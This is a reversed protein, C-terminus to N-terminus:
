QFKREFYRRAVDSDLSDVDPYKGTAKLDTPESGSDVLRDFEEQQEEPSMSIEGEPEGYMSGDHPNAERDSFFDDGVAERIIRRLQRKTIKM